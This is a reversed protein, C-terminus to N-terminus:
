EYTMEARAGRHENITRKHKHKRDHTQHDVRTVRVDAETRILNTANQAILYPLPM